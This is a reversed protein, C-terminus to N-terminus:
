SDPFLFSIFRLVNDNNRSLNNEDEEEADDDEEDKDNDNEKVNPDTEVDDYARSAVPPNSSSRTGIVQDDNGWRFIM